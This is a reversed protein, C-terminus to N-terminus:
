AFGNIPQTSLMSECRLNQPNPRKQGSIAGLAIKTLEVFIAFRDFCAMLPELISIELSNLGFHEFGCFKLHSLM